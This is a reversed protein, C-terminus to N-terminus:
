AAYNVRGGLRILGVDWRLDRFRKQVKLSFLITDGDVEAGGETHRGQRQDRKASGHDGRVYVKLM